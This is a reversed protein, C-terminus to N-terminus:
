SYPIFEKFLVENYDVTSNTDLSCIALALVDNDVDREYFIASFRRGRFFTDAAKEKIARIYTNNPLRITFKSWLCESKITIHKELFARNFEIFYNNIIRGDKIIVAIQKNPHDIAWDSIRM